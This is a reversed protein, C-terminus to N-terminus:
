HANATAYSDVRLCDEITLRGLLMYAVPLPLPALYPLCSLRFSQGHVSLSICQIVHKYQLIYCKVVIM